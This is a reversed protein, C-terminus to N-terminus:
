IDDSEEPWPANDVSKGRRKAELRRIKARAKSLERELADNLSELFQTGHSVTQVAPKMIAADKRARQVEKRLDQLELEQEYLTNNKEAIQAMLLEKESSVYMPIPKDTGLLRCLWQFVVGLPYGALMSLLMLPWLELFGQWGIGYSALPYSNAPKGEKLEVLVMGNDPLTVSEMDVRFFGQGPLQWVLSIFILLPLFVVFFWFIRWRIRM